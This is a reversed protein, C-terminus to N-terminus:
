PEDIGADVAIRLIDDWSIAFTKGTSLSQVSPIHGNILNMEYQKDGSNAEGVRERLLMADKQYIKGIM